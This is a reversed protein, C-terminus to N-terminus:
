SHPRPPHAQRAARRHPAESGFISTWDEFPLNSTVIISGPEYRQSFVEFLLEAGTQSLNRFHEAIIERTVCGALLDISAVHSLFLASLSADRLSPFRTEPFHISTPSHAV